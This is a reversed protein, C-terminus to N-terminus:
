SKPQEYKTDAPPVQYKKSKGPRYWVTYVNPDLSHVNELRDFSLLIKNWALIRGGGLPNRPEVELSCNRACEEACKWCADREKYPRECQGKSLFTCTEDVPSLPKNMDKLESQRM